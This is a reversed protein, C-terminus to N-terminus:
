DNPFPDKDAKLDITKNFQNDSAVLTADVNSTIGIKGSKKQFITIVKDACQNSGVNKPMNNANFSLTFNITSSKISISKQCDVDKMVTDKKATATTQNSSKNDKTSIYSVSLDESLRNGITIKNKLIPGAHLMDALLCISLLGKATYKLNM